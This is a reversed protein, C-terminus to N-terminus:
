KGYDIGECLRDYEQLEAETPEDEPRGQDYGLTCSTEFCCGALDEATEVWAPYEVHGWPCGQCYKIVPDICRQPKETRAREEEQRSLDGALRCCALVVALVFALALVIAAIVFWLGEM